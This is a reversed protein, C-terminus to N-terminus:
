FPGHPGSVEESCGLGEKLFTVFTYNLQLLPKRIMWVFTILAPLPTLCRPIFLVLINFAIFAYIQRKGKTLSALLPTVSAFYYKYIGRSYFSYFILFALLSYTVVEEHSMGKNRHIRWLLLAYSFVLIIGLSNKAFWYAEWFGLLQLPIALNTPHGAYYTMLQPTTVNSPQSWGPYDPLPTPIPVGPFGISWLYLQPFIAIYPLSFLFCISIFTLAYTLARKMSGRNKTILFFVPFLIVSTQKTLTALALTCSSTKYRKEILFHISLLTFFTTIPPNLWLFDNYLLNIPALAYLISAVLAKKEDTLKRVIFYLPIVSLADFMMLPLGFKWESFPLPSFLVLAYLFLPPYSYFFDRYPMLGSVLNTAQPLYYFKFDKYTELTRLPEPMTLGQPPFDGGYPAALVFVCSKVAFSVVLSLLIHRDTSHMNKFPNLL